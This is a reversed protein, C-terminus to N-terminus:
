GNPVKKHLKANAEALEKELQFVRAQTNLLTDCLNDISLDDDRRAKNRAIRWADLNTNPENPKSM